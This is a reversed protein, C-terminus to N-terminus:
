DDDSLFEFSSTSPCPWLVRNLEDRQKVLTCPDLIPLWFGELNLYFKNVIMWNTWDLPLLSPPYAKLM